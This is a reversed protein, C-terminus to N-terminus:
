GAQRESKAAAILELTGFMTRFRGTSQVGSFGADICLAPIRGELNDAVRDGQELATLMTSAIRMANTHPCGWDAIHLEGGSRLVRYAESLTAAKEAHTLHHLMLTSFVRDFSESQVPLRNALGGVLRVDARTRAIKNSALELISLDGDVGCLVANREFRFADILLTGTGCGIDLIRLGRTLRARELLQRRFAREPMTLRLLPDYLRNLIRLGLAHVYPQRVNGALTAPRQVSLL